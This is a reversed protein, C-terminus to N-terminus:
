HSTNVIASRIKCRSVVQRKGPQAIHPQGSRNRSSKVPKLGDTNGAFGVLFENDRGMMPIIGQGM